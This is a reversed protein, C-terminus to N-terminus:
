GPAPVSPAVGPFKKRLSGPSARFKVALKRDQLCGTCDRPFEPRSLPIVCIVDTLCTASIM